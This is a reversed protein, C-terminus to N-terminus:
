KSCFLGQWSAGTFPGANRDNNQSSPRKSTAPPPKNRGGRAGRGREGKGGPVFLSLALNNNAGQIGGAVTVAGPSILTFKWVPRDYTGDM